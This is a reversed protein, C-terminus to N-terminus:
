FHPWSKAEFHKPEMPRFTLSSQFTTLRRYNTRLNTKSIFWDILVCRLAVCSPSALEVKSWEVKATLFRLSTDWWRIRIRLIIVCFQHRWTVTVIVVVVHMVNFIVRFVDCLGSTAWVASSTVHCCCCYHLQHRWTVVVCCCQNHQLYFQHMVVVNIVNFILSIFTVHIFCCCYHLQHRWTVVVCCCHHRQFNVLSTVHYCYYDLTVCWATVVSFNNEM